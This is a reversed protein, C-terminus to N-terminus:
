TDLQFELLALLLLRVQSALQQSVSDLQKQVATGISSSDARSGKIAASPPKSPQQLTAEVQSILSNVQQQVEEKEQQEPGHRASILGVKAKQGLLTIGLAKAMSDLKVHLQQLSGNVQAQQSDLHALTATTDAEFDCSSPADSYQLTGNASPLVDAHMATTFTCSKSLIQKCTSRPLIVPAQKPESPMHRMCASVIDEGPALQAICGRFLM